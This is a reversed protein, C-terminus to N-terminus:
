KPSRPAPAPVPSAGSATALSLETIGADRALLSLNVIMKETVGEDMYLILTPPAAHKKVEVALRLRLEKAEIVQNAYYLEGSKAIAVAVKPGDTGPLGDAVPLKVRVGPTYVVTGLMLFIVLLFFVIAFPAADL